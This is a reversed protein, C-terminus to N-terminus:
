YFFACFFQFDDGGGRLEERRCWEQRGFRVSCAWWRRPIPNWFRSRCSGGNIPLLMDSRLGVSSCFSCWGPVFAYRGPVFSRARGVIRRATSNDRRWGIDSWTPPIISCAPRPLYNRLCIHDYHSLAVGRVGVLPTIKRFYLPRGHEGRIWTAQLSPIVGIYEPTQRVM